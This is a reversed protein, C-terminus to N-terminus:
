HPKGIPLDIGGSARTQGNKGQGADPNAETAVQSATVTAQQPQSFAKRNLRASSRRHSATKNTDSVYRTPIPSLGTKADSPIPSTGVIKTITPIPSTGVQGGRPAVQLPQTTLAYQAPMSHGGRHTMMVLGSALVDRRAKEFVNPHHLAYQAAHRRRTFEIAGNNHGTWQMVVAFLWRFAPHSLQQVEASGSLRYWFRLVKVSQRTLPM